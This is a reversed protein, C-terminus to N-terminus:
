IRARGFFFNVAKRDRSTASVIRKPPSGLARLRGLLEPAEKEVPQRVVVADVVQDPRPVRQRRVPIGAVGRDIDQARVHVRLAM